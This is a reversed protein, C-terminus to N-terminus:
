MPSRCATGSTTGGRSSDMTTMMGFHLTISRGRRSPLALEAAELEDKVKTLMIPSYGIREAIEKLPLDELSSRQLHYLVLCQAAPTLRKGKGSKRPLFRERLDVM